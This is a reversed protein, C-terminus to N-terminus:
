LVTLDATLRHHVERLRRRDSRRGGRRGQRGKFDEDGDVIAQLADDSLDSDHLAKAMCDIAEDSAASCTASGTATRGQPREAIDDESPRWRRRWLRDARGAPHVTRRDEEDVARENPAASFRPRRGPGHPGERTPGERDLSTGAPARTGESDLASFIADHGRIRVHLADGVHEALGVEGLGDRQRGVVLARDDRRQHPTGGGARRGLRHQVHVAEGVVEELGPVGLPPGLAAVVEVREVQALVAARQTRVLGGVVDGVQAVVVGLDVLGPLPDGLAVPVGLDDDRRVGGAAELDPEPGVVPAGGLQRARHHVRGPEVELAAGSTRSTPM